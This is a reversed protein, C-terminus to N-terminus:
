IGESHGLSASDHQLSIFSSVLACIMKGVELNKPDVETQNGCGRIRRTM